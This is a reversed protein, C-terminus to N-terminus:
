LLFFSAGPLEAVCARDGAELVSRVRINSLSLMWASHGQCKCDCPATQHTPHANDTLVGPCPQRPCSSLYATM